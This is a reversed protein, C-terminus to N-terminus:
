PFGWIGAGPQTAQESAKMSSETEFRRLRSINKSEGVEQSKYQLEHEVKLFLVAKM